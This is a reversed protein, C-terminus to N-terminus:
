HKRAFDAIAGALLEPAFFNALHRQGPITSRDLDRIGSEMEAVGDLCVAANTDGGLILQAPVQIRALVDPPPPLAAAVALLERPLVAAAELAKEWLRPVARVAAIEEAPTAATESMFRLLLEETRGSAVMEEADDWFASRVQRLGLPPEYVSLSRLATTQAAAHLALGGGYSHGFLHVPEGATEIVTLVDEVERQFSHERNDGSAGRGRRDMSLVTFDRALERAVPLLTAANGTAGHVLVVPVGAGIRAYGIPTGDSSNVHAFAMDGIIPGSARKAVRFARNDPFRAGIPCHPM